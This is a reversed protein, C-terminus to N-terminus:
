CSLPIKCSSSSTCGSSDDSYCDYGRVNEAECLYEASLKYIASHYMSCPLDNWCGNAGNLHGCPDLSNPEGPCWNSYDLDSGDSWYYTGNREPVGRLGIFARTSIGIDYFLRSEELSHASALFGNLESSSQEFQAYPTFGGPYDLCFISSGHSPSM